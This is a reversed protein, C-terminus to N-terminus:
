KLQTHIAALCPRLLGVYGGLGGKGAESFSPAVLLSGWAILKSLRRRREPAAMSRGKGPPSGRNYSGSSSVGLKKATGPISGTRCPTPFEGACDNSRSPAIRLSVVGCAARAQRSTNLLVGHRRQLKSDLDSKCESNPAIDGQQVAGTKPFDKV